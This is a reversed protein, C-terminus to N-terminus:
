EEVAHQHTIEPEHVGKEEQEQEQEWQPETEKAAPIVYPSVSPANHSAQERHEPAEYVVEEHEQQEDQQHPIPRAPEVAQGSGQEAIGGEADEHREPVPMPAFEAAPASASPRRGRYKSISEGPLTMADPSFTAADLSYETSPRASRVPAPKAARAAPKTESHPQ